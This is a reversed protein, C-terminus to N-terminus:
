AGRSAGTGIGLDAALNPNLQRKWIFGDMYFHHLNITTPILGLLVIEGNALVFGGTVLLLAYIPWANAQSLRALFLHAEASDYETVRALFHVIAAERHFPHSVPSM